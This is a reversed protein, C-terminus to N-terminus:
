SKEDPLWKPRIAGKQHEAVYPAQLAINLLGDIKAEVRRFDERTLFKYEMMRDRSRHFLVLGYLGMTFVVSTGILDLHPIYWNM